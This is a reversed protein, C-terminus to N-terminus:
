RPFFPRPNLVYVRKVIRRADITQRYDIGHPVGLGGLQESIPDQNAQTGCADM